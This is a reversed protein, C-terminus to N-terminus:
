IHQIKHWIKDPTGLKTQSAHWIKNDPMGFKTTIHQSINNEPTVFKKTM